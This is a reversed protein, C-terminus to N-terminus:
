GTPKENQPEEVTCSIMSLMMLASAMAMEFKKM